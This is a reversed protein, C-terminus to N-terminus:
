QCGLAICTCPTETPPPASCGGVPNLSIKDVVNFGSVLTVDTRYPEYGDKGAVLAQPGGPKLGTLQWYGKGPIACTSRGDVTVRAVVVAGTCVNVIDGSISAAEVCRGAVSDCVESLGCTGCTVRDLRPDLRNAGAKIPLTQALTQFGERSVALGNAGATLGDVRFAGNSDSSTLIGAVQITAGAVPGNTRADTVVGYVWARPVPELAFVDESTLGPLGCGTLLLLPLLVRM